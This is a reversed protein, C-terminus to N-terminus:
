AVVLRDYVLSFPDKSRPMGFNGAQSLSRFLGSVYPLPIWYKTRRVYSCEATLFTPRVGPFGTEVLLWSLKSFSKRTLFALPIGCFGRLFSKFM